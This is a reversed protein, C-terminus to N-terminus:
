CANEFLKDLADRAQWAVVRGMKWAKPSGRCVTEISKQVKADGADGYTVGAAIARYRASSEEYLVQELAADLAICALSAAFYACRLAQERHQSRTQTRDAFFRFVSMSKNFAPTRRAAVASKM